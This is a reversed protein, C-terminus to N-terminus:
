STKSLILIKLSNKLVIQVKSNGWSWFQKFMPVSEFNLVTQVKSNEFDSSNILNQFEKIILVMQVREFDSSNSGQFEKM